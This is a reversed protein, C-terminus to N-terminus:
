GNLAAAIVGATAEDTCMAIIHYSPGSSDIKVVASLDGYGAVVYTIM